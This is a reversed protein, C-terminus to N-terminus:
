HRSQMLNISIIHGIMNDIREGKAEILIHLVSSCSVLEQNLFAM